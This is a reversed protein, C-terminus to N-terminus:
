ATSAPGVGPAHTWAFFNTGIQFQGFKRWLILNAQQLVDEADARNPILSMAFGRLRPENATFLRIFANVQEPDRITMQQSLVEAGLKRLAVATEELRDPHRGCIVMKAGLRAFWFAIAKGIGSGAGSM